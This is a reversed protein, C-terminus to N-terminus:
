APTKLRAVADIQRTKEALRGTIDRCERAASAYTGAGALSLAVVRDLAAACAEASQRSVRGAIDDFVPQADTPSPDSSM